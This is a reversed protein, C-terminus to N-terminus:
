CIRGLTSTVPFVILTSSEFIAGIAPVSLM